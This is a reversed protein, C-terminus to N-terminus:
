FLCSQLLQISILGCATVHLPIRSSVKDTFSHLIKLNMYHQRGEGSINYFLNPWLWPSKQRHHILDSMSSYCVVTVKTTQQSNIHMLLIVSKQDHSMKLLSIFDPFVLFKAHLLNM